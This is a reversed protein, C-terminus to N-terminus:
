SDVNEPQPNEERPRNEQSALVLDESFKKRKLRAKKGTAYRLYYLKARRTKGKKLIEIKEVTPSHLPFIKEVGVGGIIRRVTITSSVGKGHKRAIVIGQFIAIKTKGRDKDSAKNQYTRTESIKQHVKVTDGPRVDPLDKKLQAQNFIEIKTLM